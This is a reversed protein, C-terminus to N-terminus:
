EDEDDPYPKEKIYIEGNNFNYTRGNFTCTFEEPFDWMYDEYEGPNCLSEHAIGIHGADVPYDKGYNSVFMGDGDETGRMAFHAGAANKYIGDEYGFKGDWIGEVEEKMAYCLDGIYYRGAPLKFSKKTSGVRKWNDPDEEENFVLHPTVMTVLDSKKEKFKKVTTKDSHFVATALLQLLDKKNKILDRNLTHMEGNFCIKFITKGDVVSVDKTPVVITKASM